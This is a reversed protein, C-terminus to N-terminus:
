SAQLKRIHDKLARNRQKFRKEILGDTQMGILKGGFVQRGIMGGKGGRGRTGRPDLVYKAHKADSGLAFSQSAKPDNFKRLYAGARLRGSQKNIILKGGIKPLSARGAIRKMDAKGAGRMFGAPTSASANAGRGYPHGLRRLTKLSVNGSTFESMDGLSRRAVEYHGKTLNAGVKGFWALQAQYLSTVSKHTRM